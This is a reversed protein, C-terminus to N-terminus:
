LLIRGCKCSALLMASTVVATAGISVVMSAGAHGLGESLGAHGVEWHLVDLRRLV